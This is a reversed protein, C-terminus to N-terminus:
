GDDAGEPRRRERPSGAGDIQWIHTSRSSSHGRGGTLSSRTEFEADLIVTVVRQKRFRMLLTARDGAISLARSSVVEPTYYRALNDYNRLLALMDSARVGPILAAARWDHIRGGPVPWSGGNMPEIRIAEPGPAPRSPPGALRAEVTTAYSEFARAAPPTLRVAHCFTPLLLLTATSSFRLRM